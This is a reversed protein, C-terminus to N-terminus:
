GKAQERHNALCDDCTVDRIDNANDADMSDAEVCARLDAAPFHVPADDEEFFEDDDEDVGLDDDTYSEQVPLPNSRDMEAIVQYFCVRGKGFQMDNPTEIWDRPDVKVLVTRQGYGRAFSESGVHYGVSCPVAPNRDVEWHAKRPIVAGIANSITRSHCDLWDEDVGKFAILDGDEHLLIGNAECFRLLGDQGVLYPNDILKRLFRALVAVSHGSKIMSLAKQSIMDPFARGNLKISGAEVEFGPENELSDRIVKTLDVLREVEAWDEKRVAAVVQDYVPHTSSVNQLIGNYYVVIGEPTILSAHSNSMTLEKPNSNKCGQM